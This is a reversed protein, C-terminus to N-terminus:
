SFERQLSERKPNSDAGAVTFFVSLVQDLERCPTELAEIVNAFTPPETSDAIAAIQANHTTLAQDLAPAFDDDSIAGFPAIQFPTDWRPLLPNTM